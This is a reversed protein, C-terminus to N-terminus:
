LILMGWKAKTFVKCPAHVAACHQIQLLFMVEVISASFLTWVSISQQNTFLCSSDNKSNKHIICMINTQSCHLSCFNTFSNCNDNRWFRCTSCECELVDDAFQASLVIFIDLLRGLLGLWVAVPCDHCIYRRFIAVTRVIYCPLAHM